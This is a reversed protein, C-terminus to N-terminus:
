GRVVEREADLLLLGLCWAHSLRGVEGKPGFCDTQYFREPVMGRRAGGDGDDRALLQRAAIAHERARDAYHADSTLEALHELEPGCVLGYVHLHQNAVSAQDMGRTRYGVRGLTSAADFAVDWTYRFTLAWDASRRALDIWRDRAAADPASDALAVYAMVAVYGDESTPALDVDEPAGHLFEADVYRAFYGGAREAADLYERRSLLRSGAVLAPVWALGADGEWSEIAGTRGHWASGIAGDDRQRAVVFGLNADLAARWGPHAVGAADEAELARAVFTAAEGLTRAHLRDGGPTWGKGWGREATWQGWFTGAPALNTCIADIVRTGAQVAADNGARRGHALLATAAPAGSVWAVHMALRDGVAAGLFDLAPRDFDATEILVGPDALWHWHLLGDAALEATEAATTWPEVRTEPRLRRHLDRLVASYGHRDTGLEYVALSLTAREGARWEHLPAIGPRPTGSGDYIVPEERFPFVLRIEPRDGGSFGLGRHGLPGDGFTALAVGGAEDWALVVPTAARDARFTWAPAVFRAPDALAAAVRPYQVRSELPGNDGYFLGPILWGHDDRRALPIAVAIGAQVPAGAVCELEITVDRRGVRDAPSVTLSATFEDNRVQEVPRDLPGLRWEQGVGGADMVRLLLERPGADSSTM